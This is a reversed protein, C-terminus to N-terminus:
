LPVMSPFGIKRSRWTSSEATEAGDSAIELRTIEFICFPKVCGSSSRPWSAMNLPISMTCAELYTLSLTEVYM